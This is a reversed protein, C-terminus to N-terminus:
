KKDLLGLQRAEAMTIGAVGGQGQAHQMLTALKLGTATSPNAAAEAPSQAGPAVTLGAEHGAAPGSNGAVAPTPAKVPEAPPPAAPPPEPRPNAALDKAFRGLFVQLDQILGTREDPPRAMVANTLIKKLRALEAPGSGKGASRAAAARFARENPPPEQGGAAAAACAKAFHILQYARSKKIRFRSECYDGFNLRYVKFLKRSKIESLAQGMEREVNQAALIQNEYYALQEPASGDVNPTVPAPSKESTM